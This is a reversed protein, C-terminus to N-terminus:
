TVRTAFYSCVVLTASGGRAGRARVTSATVEMLRQDMKLNSNQMAGPLGRLVEMWCSSGYVIGEHPLAVGVAGGNNSGLYGPRPNGRSAARIFHFCVVIVVGELVSHHIRVVM